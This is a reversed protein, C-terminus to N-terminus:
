SPSPSASASASASPAASASPSTSPAASGSASPSASPAASGSASPSPSASEEPTCLKEPPALLDGSEGVRETEAQYMADATAPDFTDMYLVRGWTLVAFRAGMEDFRAVVPSLTRPPWKCVPSELDFTRVYDELPQLDADECTGVTCSYLIVMAGHELNHIWGQPQARDSPGYFQADIPGFGQSNVHQGSAPPCSAYRVGAGLSVHDQGMDPQVAGYRGEQTTGTPEFVSACTYSASASSNFVFLFVGVIAAIVIVALIPTRFREFTSPQDYRRRATTRRGARPTGTPARSPTVPPTARGDPTSPQGARTSRRTRDSM